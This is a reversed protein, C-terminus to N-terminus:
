SSNDIHGTATQRIERDPPDRVLEKDLCIGISSEKREEAKKKQSLSDRITVGKAGTLLVSEHM